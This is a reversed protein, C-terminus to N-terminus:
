INSGNQIDVLIVKYSNVVEFELWTSNILSLTHTVIYNSKKFVSSLYISTNSFLCLNEHTLNSFYTCKKLFIISEINVVNKQM